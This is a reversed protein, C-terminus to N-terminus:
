PRGRSCPEPGRRRPRECRPSGTRTPSCSACCRRLADAGGGGRYRVGADGVVELNPEHDNVVVCNGAAMAEILVPHTGGVETPAVFLRLTARSSATATASSTAPARIVDPRTACLSGSYADAYPADGVLVLTLRHRPGRVGRPPRPRQERAGAPRRVALLRTPEPRPQEAIWRAEGPDPMDAGYPILTPRPATSRAISASCGRSDTISARPAPPRTASPWRLYYKAPAPGSPAGRTWGTWEPHQPAPWAPSCRSRANGAIFYLAADPRVRAGHAAHSIFRTSSRTSTSAACPPCTCWACARRLPRLAGRGHAAPLLRHRRARARQLAPRPEGGRDRLRQLRGARGPHRAARAERWRRPREGCCHRWGRHSSPKPSSRRTPREPPTACVATGLRTAGFIASGRRPTERHRAPDLLLGTEGDAVTEALGGDATALVPVGLSYSEPVVLGFPEDWLSPVVTLFSGAWAVAKDRGQLLGRFTVNALRRRRAADRLAPEEAGTGVLHVDFDPLTAALDLAVSPGKARILSGVFTLKPRGGHEDPRKRSEAAPLLAALDEAPNHLVQSASAPCATRRMCTARHSPQERHLSRRRLREQARAVLRDLAGRGPGRERRLLWPLLSARRVGHLGDRACDDCPRGDRFAYSSLCFARYNRLHQVTPVGHSRCADYAAGTIFPVLNHLHVVDVRERALM